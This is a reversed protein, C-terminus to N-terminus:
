AFEGGLASPGSGNGVVVARRSRNGGHVLLNTRLHTDIGGVWYSGDPREIEVLLDVWLPKATM